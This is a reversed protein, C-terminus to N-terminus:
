QAARCERSRRAPLAAMGTGLLGVSMPEPVSVPSLEFVTGVDNTGGYYTTGFLNGNGDVIM